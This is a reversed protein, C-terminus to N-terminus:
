QEKDESVITPFIRIRFVFPNCVWIIKYETEWKKQIRKIIDLSVYSSYKM